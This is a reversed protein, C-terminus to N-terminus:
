PDGRSHAVVAYNGKLHGIFRPCAGSSIVRVDHEVPDSLLPPGDTGVRRADPFCQAYRAPRIRLRASSNCKVTFLAPSYCRVTYLLLSVGLLHYGMCDAIPWRIDLADRFDLAADDLRM